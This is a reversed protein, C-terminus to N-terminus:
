CSCPSRSPSPWAPPASASTRRISRPTSTSPWARGVAAASGFVVYHGYGWTVAARLSTLPPGAEKAFYVWWMAFVTLLGGAAITALDALTAEADLASQIAVTSALVSEGLVIITFLGYREAIHHPQWTTPASREALVPVLLEGAALITFVAPTWGQDRITLWTIWGIQLLTMGVAYRLCCPRRQPDAGAARLWQAVMALRMVVYGTAVVTFDGAGM